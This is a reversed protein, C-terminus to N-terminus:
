KNHLQNNYDREFWNWATRLINELASHKPEWGLTARVLSAEAVLAPVDGARRKEIRYPVERGTIEQSLEIIEKVSRGQGTGLNLKLSKAGGLLKELALRHASALDLVHIYDRLCTGDPTPYDDGFLSLAPIMESAAMFIRPILHTEPYHREGIGSDPDAGAANFYRLCAGHLGCSIEFDDLMREMFAKSAGYPSMPAFPTSEDIPDLPGLSDPPNISGRSRGAPEGYVACSSSVVLNRLGSRRMAELICLTGYVNNRYYKGPDTVSEGVNISAAFHIVGCPQHAAMTESLHDTDLIDGQVFEGWRLFDRHGTSLNDFVVPHYGNEALDKCTHSGIYGAGGIVLVKRKEPVM